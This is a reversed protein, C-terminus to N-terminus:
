EARSRPRSTGHRSVAVVGRPRYPAMAASLTEAQVAYFRLYNIAEDVDALAETWSKAAEYVEWAAVDDQREALLAAARRLIDARGTVPIAAWGATAAAALTLAGDIQEASAYNVLGLAGHEPHSPDSVPEVEETRVDVGNLRLPYDRGFEERVGKLADEFGLREREIFLRRPPHNRFESKM